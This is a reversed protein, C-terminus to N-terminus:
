KTLKPLVTVAFILGAVGLGVPLLWSPLEGPTTLLGAQKTQAAQAQQAKMIAEARAADAEAAAATAKERSKLLDEQADLNAKNMYIAGGVTIVTKLIDAIHDGTTPKTTTTKADADADAGMGGGVVGVRQAVASRFATRLHPFMVPGPAGSVERHIDALIMDVVDGKSKRAMRALAFLSSPNEAMDAAIARSFSREHM